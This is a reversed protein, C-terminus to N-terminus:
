TVIRDCCHLVDASPNGGFSIGQHCGQDVLIGYQKKQNLHAYSRKAKQHAVVERVQPGRLQSDPQDYADVQTQAGIV